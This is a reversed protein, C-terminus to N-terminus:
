NIVIVIEYGVDIFKKCVDFVGFLFEFEDLKYVYGYDVNVVGDCDLFLVKSM